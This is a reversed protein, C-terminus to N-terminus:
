DEGILIPAITDKRKFLLKVSAESETPLNIPYLNDYADEWWVQIDVERLPYDSKLSQYQKWGQGSYQFNERNNIQPPIYFEDVIQRSDGINPEYQSVIPIRQTTFVLKQYDNFLATTGYEQTMVYYDTGGINQTNNYKDYFLIQYKADGTLQEFYENSVFLAQLAENLYVNITPVVAPNILTGTNYDTTGYFSFLSTKSDFAVYPSSTPPALPKLAKLELFAELFKLNMIEQFERYNWISEGYIDVDLSTDSVWELPKTVIAGDFAMTIKFKDVKSIPNYNPLKPNPQYPDTINKGKPSWIMIPVDVAPVDFRTLAVAYDNPKDLYPALRSVSSKAQDNAKGEIDRMSINVYVNDEDNPEENENIKSFRITAM